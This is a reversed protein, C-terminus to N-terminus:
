PSSSRRGLTRPDLTEVELMRLTRNEFWLILDRAEVTLLRWRASRMEIWSVESALAICSATSCVKLFTEGSSFDKASNSCSFFALALFTSDDGPVDNLRLVISEALDEVCDTLVFFGVLTGFFYTTSDFNRVFLTIKM